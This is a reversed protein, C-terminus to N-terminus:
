LKPMTNTATSIRKLFVCYPITRTVIYQVGVERLVNMETGISSVVERESRMVADTFVGEKEFLSLVVDELNDNLDSDYLLLYRHNIKEWLEKIEKYVAPRIKIPKPKEKNRDKIKGSSLGTAFDPFEAFFADRTEPVFSWRFRGTRLM